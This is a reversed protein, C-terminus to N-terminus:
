KTVTSQEAKALEMKEVSTLGPLQVAETIVQGAKMIQQWNERAQDLAPRGGQLLASHTHAASYADSFAERASPELYLCNSQWWAQCEKVVAGIDNTHVKALLKHWLAYAEQHAQLRRDIAALRLQHKAKLEEILVSYQIKTREIEHTVQAIDERTALNKAKENLYSPLFVRVLYFVMGGFLIVGIGLADSSCMLKGIEEMSM